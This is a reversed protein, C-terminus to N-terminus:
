YRKSYVKEYTFIVMFDTLSAAIMKKLRVQSFGFFHHQSRANNRKVSKKVYM